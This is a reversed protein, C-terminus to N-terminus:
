TSNQVRLEPDRLSPGILDASERQIEEVTEGRREGDYTQDTSNIHKKEVREAM